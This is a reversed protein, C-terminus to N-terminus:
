SNDVDGAVANFCRISPNCICLVHKAAQSVHSHSSLHWKENKSKKNQDNRLVRQLYRDNDREGLDDTTRSESHVMCEMQNLM